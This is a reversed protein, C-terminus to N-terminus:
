HSELAWAPFNHDFTAPIPPPNKRSIRIQAPDKANNATQDATEETPSIDIPEVVHDKNDPPTPENGDLAFSDDGSRVDYQTPRGEPQQALSIKAAFLRRKGRM